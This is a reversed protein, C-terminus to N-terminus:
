ASKEVALDFRTKKLRYVGAVLGVCNFNLLPRLSRPDSNENVAFAYGVADPATVTLVSAADIM